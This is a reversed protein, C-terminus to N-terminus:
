LQNGVVVRTEPVRITHEFVEDEVLVPVYGDVAKVHRGYAEKEGSELPGEFGFWQETEGITGLAPDIAGAFEYYTNNWFYTCNGNQRTALLSPTAFISPKTLYSLIPTTSTLKSRDLLAILTSNVLTPNSPVIYQQSFSIPYNYTNTILGKETSAHSSVPSFSSTGSTLQYLTENYGLATM